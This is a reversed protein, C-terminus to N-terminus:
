PVSMVWRSAYPTLQLPWRVRQGSEDIMRDCMDAISLPCAAQSVVPKAMLMRPQGTLFRNGSGDFVTGIVDADIGVSRVVDGAVAIAWSSTSPSVVSNDSLVDREKRGNRNLVFIAPRPDHMLFANGTIRNAPMLEGQALRHDTAIVLAYSRVMAVLNGDLVNSSANHLMLGREADLVTNNHVAVGKSLDDLYIGAALTYSDPSGVHNGLVGRVLNSSVDSDLPIGDNGAWGYIAGCDDLALCSDIVENQQVRSRQNFRIGIYGSRRITNDRVQMDSSWTGNIAARSSQPWGGTGSDTVQSGLVIVRAARYLNIGDRGALAVRVKSVSVDQSYSLNLGDRGTHEIHVDDLQVQSCRECSVGDVAAGVIDFGSLHLATTGDAAVGHSLTAVEVLTKDPRWGPALRVLLRKAVADWAWGTAGQEGLMWPKGSFTLPAGKRAGNQGIGAARFRASTGEVVQGTEITWGFSRLHVTTGWLDRGRLGASDQLELWVGDAVKAGVPAPANSLRLFDTAPYRAPALLAGNVLVMRAPADMAVSYIDGSDQRWGEIRQALKLTPRQGARCGTAARVTLRVTSPLLQISESWQGGCPLEIVDGSRVDVGRLLPGLIASRDDGQPMPVVHVTAQACTVPLCICCVLRRLWRMCVTAQTM